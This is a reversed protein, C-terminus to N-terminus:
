LFPNNKSYALTQPTIKASGLLRGRRVVHREQRFPQYQAHLAPVRLVHTHLTPLFPPCFRPSYTRTTDTAPAIYRERLQRLFCTARNREDSLMEGTEDDPLGHVSSLSHPHFCVPIRRGPRYLKGRQRLYRAPLRLPRRRGQMPPLPNNHFSMRRLNTGALLTEHPYLDTHPPRKSRLQGQMRCPHFRITFTLSASPHFNTTENKKKQPQRNTSIRNIQVPIHRHVM